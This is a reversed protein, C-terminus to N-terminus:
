LEANIYDEIVKIQDGWVQVTKITHRDKIHVKYITQDDTMIETVLQITYGLFRRKILKKLEESMLKEEYNKVAFQFRGDADYYVRNQIENSTFVAVSGVDLKYWKESGPHFEEEFHRAAHINVENLRLHSRNKEALLSTDTFSNAIARNRPFLFIVLIFLCIAPNKM